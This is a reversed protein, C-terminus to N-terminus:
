FSRAKYAIIKIVLGIILMFKERVVGHFRLHPTSTYSWENKVEASSSALYNIKLRPGKM